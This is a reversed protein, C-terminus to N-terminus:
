FSAERKYNNHPMSSYYVLKSIKFAIDIKACDDVNNLDCNLLEQIKQIRYKLTNKHIFLKNAALVMNCNEKLFTELTDILNLNNVKDHEFLPGLVDNSFSSLVAKDSINLLLNYISSHQYFLTQTNENECKLIQISKEAEYYSKKLDQIRIYANGLGVRFNLTSYKSSIKSKIKDLITALRKTELNKTNVMFIISNNRKMTIVKHNYLSFNDYILRQLNDDMNSYDSQVDFELIGIRHKDSIDYGYFGAKGILSEECVGDTFLINELLNNITEAELKKTIIANCIDQSIDVLKVQWPLEFLPFCLTDAIKIAEPPIKPIFEGINIILGSAGKANIKKIFDVLVEENGKLNVGTIFVLEGGNLWEAARRSDSFCEAIYIWKVIRDIGEKGAAINLTKLSPLSLIDKCKVLM